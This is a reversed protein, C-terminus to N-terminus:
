GCYNFTGNFKIKSFNHSNLSIVAGKYGSDSVLINSGKGLVFYPIHEKQCYYIVKRLELYDKPEIWIEAPGGIQLTTHASLPEKFRIRGKLKKLWFM